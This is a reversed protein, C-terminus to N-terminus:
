DTGVSEAGSRVPWFGALLLWLAFFMIFPFLIRAEQIHFLGVLPAALGWAAPGVIGIWVVWVSGLM